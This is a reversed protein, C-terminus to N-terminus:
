ELQLAEMHVYIYVCETPKPGQLTRSAGVKPRRDGELTYIHICIFVYAHVWIYAPAYVYANRYVYMRLTPVWTYMHIHSRM